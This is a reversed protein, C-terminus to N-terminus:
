PKRRLDLNPVVDLNAKRSFDADPSLDSRADTHWINVFRNGPRLERNPDTRLDSYIKISIWTDFGNAFSQKQRLDLNPDTRLDFCMQFPKGGLLLNTLHNSQRSRGGSESQNAFLDSDSFCDNGLPNSVQIEM